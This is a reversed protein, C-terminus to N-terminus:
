RVLHLELLLSNCMFGRLRKDGATTQMRTKVVFIPNTLLTM